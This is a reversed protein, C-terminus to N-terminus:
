PPSEARPAVTRTHTSGCARAYRQTVRMVHDLVLLEPAPELAGARVAEYQLPMHQGLLPLPIELCSLNSLLGEVATAVKPRSWYYRIRDSYGFLRGAHVRDPNGNEACYSRWHAKDRLMEQDCISPLDARRNEPVIEAEIYSLAFLGRRLAHTLQPGVKLIAFHDRVLGRLANLPQYDTSHAEYAVRAVTGILAKLPAVAQPEYGFVTENDFGVGPEVVLGIVREWADELGKDRFAKRHVRLTRAAAEAATVRSGPNAGAIGGAAPVETGIVYLIDAGAGRKRTALEATRCLEAAREAVTREPLPESEGACAMSTDLHIKTFGAEAYAAVLEHARAMAREAPESTWCIPGLHDGGLVIRGNEAGVKKAIREVVGPFQAPYMGSYGGFQNVQNATAEILVIRGDNVGQRIAAELVVPHASCVAFVGWPRGGRNAAIIDQLRYM